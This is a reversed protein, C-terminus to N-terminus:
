DGKLPHSSPYAQDEDVDGFPPPTGATALRELPQSGKDSSTGNSKLMDKRSHHNDILL